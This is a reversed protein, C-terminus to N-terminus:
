IAMPARCPIVEGLVRYWLVIGTQAIAACDSVHSKRGVIVFGSTQVPPIDSPVAADLL